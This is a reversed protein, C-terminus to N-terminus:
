KKHRGQLLWWIVGLFRVITGQCPFRGRLFLAVISGCIHGLDNNLALQRSSNEIMTVKGIVNGRALPPDFYSVYDGRTVLSGDINIKILRHAILSDSSGHYFIIDGTKLTDTNVPEITLISGPKAFPFMSWGQAKFRLPMGRGIIDQSFKLFDINDM